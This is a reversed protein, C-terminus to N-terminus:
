VSLESGSINMRAALAPVGAPDLRLSTISRAPTTIQGASQCGPIQKRSQGAKRRSRFQLVTQDERRARQVGILLRREIDRTRETGRRTPALRSDRGPGARAAHSRGALAAM